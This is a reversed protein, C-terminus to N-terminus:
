ADKIHAFPNWVEDADGTLTKVKPRSKVDKAKDKRGKGKFGQKSQGQLRGDAVDADEAAASELGREALGLLRRATRAVRYRTRVRVPAPTLSSLSRAPSSSYSANNPQTSYSPLSLSVASSTAESSPGATSAYPMTSTRCVSKRMTPSSSPLTTRLLSSPSPPASPSPSPSSSSSPAGVRVKTLFRPFAGTNNWVRTNLGGDFDDEDSSIEDDIDTDGPGELPKKDRSAAAAANTLTPRKYIPFIRPPAPPPTPLSLPLQSPSSSPSSPRPSDLHFTGYARFVFPM